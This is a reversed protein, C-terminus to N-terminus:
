DLIGQLIENFVIDTMHCSDIILKYVRKEDINKVGGLYKKLSQGHQLSIRQQSLMFIRPLFQIYSPKLLEMNKNM